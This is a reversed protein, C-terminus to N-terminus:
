IKGHRRNNTVKRNCSSIFLWIYYLMSLDPTEINLLMGGTVFIEYDDVEYDPEGGHRKGGARCKSMM